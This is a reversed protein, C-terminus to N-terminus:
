CRSRPRREKAGTGNGLNTRRLDDLSAVAAACSRDISPGKGDENWVGEIQYASTSVGWYFGDPFRRAAGSDAVSEGRMTEVQADAM